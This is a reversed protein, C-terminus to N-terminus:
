RPKEDLAKKDEEFIKKYQDSLIVSERKLRWLRVRKNKGMKKKRM